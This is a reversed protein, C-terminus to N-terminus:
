FWKIRTNYKKLLAALFTGIVGCTIIEGIGVTLMFYPLTGELKYAYALILPVIVVNAAIPPVSGACPINKLKYTGVAGLFTALTGGFIDWPICGTTLNSIFCGITLGPIAAPTFLPLITLVESLRLQIAGGSLGAAASVYTLVVYLAAILAGQSLFQAKNKKM